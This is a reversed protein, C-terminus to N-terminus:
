VQVSINTLSAARSGNGKDVSKGAPRVETDTSFATLIDDRYCVLSVRNSVPSPSIPVPDNNILSRLDRFRSAQETETVYLGSSM